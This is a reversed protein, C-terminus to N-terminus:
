PQGESHGPRVAGVQQAFRELGARDLSRSMSWKSVLFEAEGDHGQVIHVAYGAIALQARLTALHKDSEAIRRAVSEPLIADHEHLGDANAPGGAPTRAEPRRMPAEM